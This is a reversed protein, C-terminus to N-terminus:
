ATLPLVIEVTTGIGQTSMIDLGYEEGFYLKIRQNVNPLAIGMHIRSGKAQELINVGSLKEKIGALQEQTMGVGDDQVKIVLRKGTVYADLTVTYEGQKGHFGHVVANEVIPQLMLNLVQAELVEREQIKSHLRFRNNFRFRQITMYNEVLKIEEQLSVVRASSATMKRSLKALAETMDAVEDVGHVLAYGRISELTNYLFHPNMQSQLAMLEAEQRLIEASYERELAERQQSYIFYFVREMGIRSRLTNIQAGADKKEMLSRLINGSKVIPRIIMHYNLFVSCVTFGLMLWISYREMKAAQFIVLVPLLVNVVVFQLVIMGIIGRVSQKKRSKEM